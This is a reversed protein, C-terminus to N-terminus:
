SAEHLINSGLGQTAVDLHTRGWEPIKTIIGAKVKDVMDVNVEGDDTVLRANDGADMMAKLYWRCFEISNPYQPRDVTVRSWDPGSIPRGADRWNQLLEREDKLKAASSSRTMLMAVGSGDPNQTVAEDGLCARLKGDTTADIPQETNRFYNWTKGNVIRQEVAGYYDCDIYQLTGRTRLADHKYTKHKSRGSVM